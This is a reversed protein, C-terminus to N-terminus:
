GAIANSKNKLIKKFFKMCSHFPSKIIRKNDGKRRKEEKRFLFLAVARRCRIYTYILAKHVTHATLRLLSKINNEVHVGIRSDITISLLKELHLEQFFGCIVGDRLTSHTIHAGNLVTAGGCMDAGVGVICGNSAMSREEMSADTVICCDQVHVLNVVFATSCLMSDQIVAEGYVQAKATILSKGRIVAEGSVNANGTVIAGGYVKAEGGIWAHKGKRILLNDEREVYGGYEAAHEGKIGYIRHLVVGDYTITEDSLVFYRHPCKRAIEELSFVEGNITVSNKIDLM